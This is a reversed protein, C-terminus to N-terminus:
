DLRKEMLIMDDKQGDSCEVNPLDRVKEFGAHIYSSIAATNRTFARLILSKLGMVDRAYGCALDASINAFGKGLADDEGIFIGYEATGEDNDIDRFYVCGVPRDGESRDLIILQVVKGTAIMTRRWTKQGEATFDERYIFNDRVRKKNRWRIILDDDAETMLRLAIRESEAAYPLNSMNRIGNYYEKEAGTLTGAM